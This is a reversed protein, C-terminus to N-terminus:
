IRRWPCTDNKSRIVPEKALLVDNGYHIANHTDHSTSMLYDPNLLFDSRNRIDNLGIPNMHHVMVKGIIAYGEVGMDWGMDRVIVFDRVAKWEKSKYFEQNNYREFGFTEIGVTGDLRLYQYREEFTKLHILESYVRINMQGMRGAIDGCLM